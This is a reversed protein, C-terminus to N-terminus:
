RIKNGQKTTKFKKTKDNEIIKDSLKKLDDLDDMLNGFLHDLNYNEM